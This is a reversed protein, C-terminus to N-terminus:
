DEEAAIGYDDYESPDLVRTHEDYLTADNLDDAYVEEGNEDTIVIRTNMWTEITIDYAM